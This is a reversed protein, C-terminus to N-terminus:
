CPYQKHVGMWAVQSVTMANKDSQQSSIEQYTKQILDQLLLANLTIGPPLCFLPHGQKAASENAQIMTEAIGECTVALVIHASRAWNQAEPNAKIEMQPIKNAINMFHEITDAQVMHTIFLLGLLLARM